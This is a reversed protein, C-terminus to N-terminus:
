VNESNTYPTSLSAHFSKRNSLQMPYEKPKKEKRFRQQFAVRINHWKLTRRTEPDLTFVLTILIGQFRFVITSIVNVAYAATNLNGNNNILSFILVLLSFLNTIIFILPYVILPRIELEAQKQLNKVEHSYKGQWIRQQRKAFVFAIILLILVTVMIVNIPIYYLTISLWYGFPYNTCDDINRNRIWCFYGVPGYTMKILPIWNFLFPLGFIIFIYLLELKETNRKFVVKIFVVVMIVTTALVIWWITIQQFLGIIECYILASEKVYALNSSLDMFAFVSFSFASIALYLILRQTFFVYKKFLIIVGLMCLIFIASLLSLSSRLGLLADYKPLTYISWCPESTNNTAM